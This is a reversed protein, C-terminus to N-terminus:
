IYEDKISSCIFFYNKKQEIVKVLVCVHTFVPMSKFLVYGMNCFEMLAVFCTSAEVNYWFLLKGTEQQEQTRRFHFYEM